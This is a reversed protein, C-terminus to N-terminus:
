RRRAWNAAMRRSAEGHLGALDERLGHQYYPSVDLYGEQGEGRIWRCPRGVPVRCTPVPCEVAIAAEYRAERAALKAAILAARANRAAEGADRHDAVCALYSALVDSVAATAEDPLLVERTETV